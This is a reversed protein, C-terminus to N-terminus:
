QASKLGTVVYTGNRKELVFRIKDGVKFGELMAAEKVLFSMTMPPMDQSKIEGHKITIKLNDKDIKRIEGDTMADTVQAFVGTPASTALVFTTAIFLRRSTNM